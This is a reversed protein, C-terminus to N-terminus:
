QFYFPMFKYGEGTKGDEIYFWCGNRQVSILDMTPVDAQFEQLETFYTTSNPSTRQFLKYIHHNSPSQLHILLLNGTM